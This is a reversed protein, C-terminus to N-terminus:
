ERGIIVVQKGVNLGTFLGILASPANKFGEVIDEVYVIKGEKIRKIITELFQPYLHWHDFVLFGKMEIQKSVLFVLNRVSEPDDLMAGGFNEFYIDVGEPFYKDIPNSKKKAKSIPEPSNNPSARTVQRVLPRTCQGLQNTYAINGMCKMNYLSHEGYVENKEKSNTSGVVYCGISKAFQGVLQGVAGSVASVNVCEGNKLSCIEFFGVFASIRPM